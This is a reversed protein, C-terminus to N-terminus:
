EAQVHYIQMHVQFDIKNIQCHTITQIIRNTSSCCTIWEKSQHKFEHSAVHNESFYLCRLTTCNIFINNNLFHTPYLFQATLCHWHEHEDFSYVIWYQCGLNSIQEIQSCNEWSKHLIFKDPFYIKICLGFTVSDQWITIAARVLWAWHM